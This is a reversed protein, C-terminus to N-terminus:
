RKLGQGRCGPGLGAVRIPETCAVSGRCIRGSEAGRVGSAGTMARRMVRGWRDGTPTGEATMGDIGGAAGGGGRCGTRLGRAAPLRKHQPRRRRRRRCGRPRVVGGAVACSMVLARRARPAACRLSLPLLQSPCPSRSVRVLSRSIRVLPADTWRRLYVVLDRSESPSRSQAQELGGRGRGERQPAEM